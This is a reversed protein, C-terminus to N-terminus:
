GRRPADNAPGGQEPSKPTAVSEIGVAIFTAQWYSPFDPFGTLGAAVMQASREAIGKDELLKTVESHTPPKRVDDTNHQRAFELFWAAEIVDASDRSVRRYLDIALDANGVFRVLDCTGEADDTFDHFPDSLFVPRRYPLTLQGMNM